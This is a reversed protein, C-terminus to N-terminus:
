NSCTNLALEGQMIELTIPCLYENPISVGDHLAVAPAPPATPKVTGADPTARRGSLNGHLARSFWNGNIDTHRQLFLLFILVCAINFLTSNLEADEDGITM